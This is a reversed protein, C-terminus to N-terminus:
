TVTIYNERQFTTTVLKKDPTFSWVTLKVTYTGPKAYVHVPNKQTSSLRDGFDYKWLIPSGTSNGTFQVRLPASGSIPVATFDASVDPNVPGKVQIYDERVMTMREISMGDRAMITLSVTYNGPRKYTHAPNRSISAFGDGFQYIWRIINGDSEDTFQVTLPNTGSLPDASFDAYFPPDTRIHLPLLDKNEGDIVFPANCFGDGRDPTVQSWGTGDPNAWYNGGLYPGGVINPGSTKKANWTVNTVDGGSLDVNEDNSLYNNWIHVNSADLIGIGPGETDRIHSGELYLTDGGLIIGVAGNSEATINLLWADSTSELDIGAFPNGSAILHHLNIEHCDQITFGSGAFPNSSSLGMSNSVRVGDSDQIQFGTAINERASCEEIRTNDSESVSFGVQNMLTTVNRIKARDSGLLFLGYENKRLVLDQVTLDPCAIGFVVGAGTPGDIIAAPQEVLYYVPRGDVTNTPDVQHYYHETDEGEVGFNMTNDSMTNGSLTANRANDLLIGWGCGTVTNDRVLYDDSMLWIGWESGSVTNGLITCDMEPDDLPSTMFIGGNGGNRNFQNGILVCDKSKENWIGTNVNEDIACGSILLGTNDLSNIGYGGVYPLVVGWGNRSIVSDLIHIGSSHMVGIGTGGFSIGESIWPVNDQFTCREITGDSTEAISIGQLNGTAQCDYIGLEGVNDFAFGFQWGTVTLNRITINEYGEDEEGAGVGISEWLNPGALTHGDGNLVVDSSKIWIATETTSNDLDSVLRYCGPHDIVAPATIPIEGEFIHLPLFDTNDSDVVFSANCFGDGRDPTVQSWGTGDPNAWYNGGLYPGGVINTGFTKSSNWTNAPPSPDPNCVFNGPEVSEVDTVLTTLPIEYRPTVPGGGFEPPNESDGVGGRLCFRVSVPSTILNDAILNDFSGEDAERRQLVIGNETAALINSVITNEPSNFLLVGNGADGTLTNGTLNLSSSGSLDFGVGSEPEITNDSLVAGQSTDTSIGAVLTNKIVNGSFIANNFGSVRDLYIGAAAGDITNDRIAVDELYIGTVIGCDASNEVLNGSIVGGFFDGVMLGDSCGAVHNELITLHPSAIAMIGYYMQDFSCNTVSLNESRIAMVGASNASCSLDQIEADDCAYLIVTGLTDSSDISLDNVGEFYWVPKGDVLNAQDIQNGPLVGPDLVFPSMWFNYVNNDMTNQSVSSNTVWIFGMGTDSNSNVTNGNVILGSCDEFRYALEVDTGVVHNDEILVGSTGYTMIGYIGKKPTGPNETLTNNRIIVNESPIFLGISGGSGSISNDSVTLNRVLGHATRAIIGIGAGRSQTITNGSIVGNETPDESGSSVIAVSYGVPNLFTNDTISFDSPDYLVVTDAHGYFTCSSIELGTLDEGTVAPYTLYYHTIKPHVITLDHLTNNDSGILVASSNAGTINLSSLQIGPAELTIGFEAGGADIVPYGTGTDIGKLVLRRDIVLPEHYYGSRIEIVDGDSSANIATQISTFNCGAPCVTYTAAMAPSCTIVCLVFGILIFLHVKTDNIESIAVMQHVCIGGAPSVSHMEKIKYFYKISNLRKYNKSKKSVVTILFLIGPSYLYDVFDREPHHGSTTWSTSNIRHKNDRVASNM